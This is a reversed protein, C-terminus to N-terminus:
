IIVGALDYTLGGTIRVTTFSGAEACGKKIYVVGDVEPAQFVARGQLAFGKKQSPGEVLVEVVRGTRARNKRRSIKAQLSMIAHYREDKIKEPVKPSLKSAPTGEEDRYRFVGLHEFEFASVFKLLTAFDRATEGPFGVMFTTRLAIGPVKERLTHLLKEIRQGTIRRGMRKLVPDSMHQLPLDLYSCIKKEAAIISILEPTINLPHCYLLRIWRLDPVRVLKKLLGALGGRSSSSLGYRTTDQAILNIEKVGRATLDKVEALISLPARSKYPGRIKPITCYSCRHSCGEAIKVYATYRPTALIRPTAPSLLYTAHEIFIKAKQRGAALKQLHRAIHQFEGTGLFLDVEPLATVLSEKYRQPLCGCVLLYQCAGTKKERALTLITDIAERTAEEIFACTNVIIIDAARKEATLEYGAQALVGQIVESDVLNKACGLSVLYASRPRAPATNLEV